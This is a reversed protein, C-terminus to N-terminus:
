LMWKGKKNYQKFPTRSATKEGKNVIAKGGYYLGTAIAGPMGLVGSKLAFKGTKSLASGTKKFLGVTPSIFDKYNKAASPIVKKNIFKKGKNVGVRIKSKLAEGKSYVVLQNNKNKYNGNVNAM